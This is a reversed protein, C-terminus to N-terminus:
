SASRRRRCWLEVLTKAKEVIVKWELREQVHESWKVLQMMINWTGIYMMDKRIWKGRM